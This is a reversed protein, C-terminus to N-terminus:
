WGVGRPHGRHSRKQPRTKEIASRNKMREEEGRYLFGWRRGGGGGGWERSGGTAPGFLLMAVDEAACALHSQQVTAALPSPNQQWLAESPAGRASGRPQWTAHRVPASSHGDSCSGVESVSSAFQTSATSRAADAAVPRSLSSPPTPPQDAGLSACAPRQENMFTVETESATQNGTSSGAGFLQQAFEEAACALQHSQQKAATWRSAADPVM